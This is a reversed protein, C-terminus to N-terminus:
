VGPPRQQSVLRVPSGREGGRYQRLGGYRQLSVRPRRFRGDTM